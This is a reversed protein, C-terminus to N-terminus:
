NQPFKKRMEDTLANAAQPKNNNTYFELLSNYAEPMDPAKEIRKKLYREALEKEGFFDYLMAINYYIRENEQSLQSARILAKLSQQYKRNESLILGYMYLGVGDEPYKSVYSELVKEAKSPQGMVSYLHALNIEVPQLEADQDISSLYMKEAKDYAGQSYYYNALNYKGIPFDANFLLSQFYESSVSAFATKYKVSFLANDFSIVKQLAEFRVAKIEDSLMELIGELDTQNQIAFRRIAAVRMVPELKYLGNLIAKNSEANNENLYSIAISRISVPYLDDNIIQLLLADADPQSTQAQYFATSFHTPRSVGFWQEIYTQSWANSKDTHCQNCANPTGYKASLDPRPIRFSHDRRYDVGMFNQGHMHCNICDTGSGVEFIIGAQSIVSYGNEGISKHFTHKPTDYDTEKHCQACLKNGELVLKGSHVNHCDNCKVDRIYMKSQTFSAFVYDEEKIQGDIYWNPETPLEPYIHNYISISHPDFDSFSTRRSHCRACNNVYEETNIGSTKIPLGYNVFDQRAYDALEAWAIHRSSPGHCAECSVNIESWTTQYSDTSLDFGKKLNTSHCDACMSNWNQSQNTWHLWNQHNVAMNQYVSDAMYFWNNDKSNWTLALTQLRGGPFEVLYNQLPFHGFVYKVEYDRMEGDEGDTFVFFKNEKKYCRHSQGNRILVANNFDGLVSTDNAFDMALDHDSGVWDNYEIEHCSKCIEKGVYEATQNYDRTKPPFYVQMVLYIPTLLLVLLGLM